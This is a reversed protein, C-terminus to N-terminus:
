ILLNIPPSARNMIEKFWVTYNEPKSEINEKTIKPNEWQYDDAEHPNLVISGNYTGYFVHDIENESLGNSFDAQYHFTFEHNLPVTFGMEEFLRKEASQLPTEGLTPHGCCTNTWLSPSHYKTSARKQLLIEGKNNFILVSFALHLLGKKHVEMKEEQGIVQGDKDCLPILIEM